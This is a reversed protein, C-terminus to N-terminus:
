IGELATKIGLCQDFRTLKDCVSAQTPSRVSEFGLYCQHSQHRPSRYYHCQINPGSMFRAFYGLSPRRDSTGRTWWSRRNGLQSGYPSRRRRRERGWRFSSHGGNYGIGRGYKRGRAM